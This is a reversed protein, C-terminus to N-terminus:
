KPKRKSRLQELQGELDQTSRIAALQWLSCETIFEDQKGDAIERYAAAAEPLRGMRRLCCASLYQAFVHDDPSLTDAKQLGIARYAAEYQGAKFLNQAQRLTDLPVVGDLSEVPKPDPKTGKPPVPTPPPAKEPATPRNGLQEIKKLLELRLKMREAADSSDPTAEKSLRDKEKLLAELEDKLKKVDGSPARAAPPQAIGGTAACLGGILAVRLFYPRM